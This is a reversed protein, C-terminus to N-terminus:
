PKSRPTTGTMVGKKVARRTARNTTNARPPLLTPTVATDTTDIAKKVENITSLLSSALLGIFVLSAWDAQSLAIGGLRVSGAFQTLAFLWVVTVGGIWVCLQTLAANWDRGRLFKLFNIVTFVLTGLLLVPSFPIDNM